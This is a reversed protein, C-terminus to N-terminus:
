VVMRIPIDELAALITHILNISSTQHKIIPALPQHMLGSTSISQELIIKQTSM